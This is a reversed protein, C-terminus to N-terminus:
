IFFDSQSVASEWNRGIKNGDFPNALYKKILVAFKICFYHDNTISKVLRKGTKTLPRMNGRYEGDIKPEESIGQDTLLSMDSESVSTLMHTRRRENRRKSRHNVDPPRNFPSRFLVISTAGADDSHQFDPESLPACGGSRDRYLEAAFRNVKFAATCRKTHIRTTM